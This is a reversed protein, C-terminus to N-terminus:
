RGSWRVHFQDFRARNVKPSPRCRLHRACHKGFNAKERRATTLFFPHSQEGGDGENPKRAEQHIAADRRMPEAGCWRRSELDLPLVGCYFNRGAPANPVPRQGRQRALAQIAPEFLASCVLVLLGCCAALAPRRPPRDGM